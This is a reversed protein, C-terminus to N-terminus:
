PGGSGRQGSWFSVRDVAIPESASLYLGSYQIRGTDAASWSQTSGAAVSDCLTGQCAAVLRGGTSDALGHDWLCLEGLDPSQQPVYDSLSDRRSNTPEFVALVHVQRFAIRAQAARGAADAPFRLCLERTPRYATLAPTLPIYIPEPGLQVRSESIVRQGTPAGRSRLLFAAVGLLSAASLVAVVLRRKTM